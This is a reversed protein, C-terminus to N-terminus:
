PVWEYHMDSVLQVHAPQDVQETGPHDNEVVLPNHGLLGNGKGVQKGGILPKHPLQQESSFLLCSPQCAAQLTGRCPSCNM